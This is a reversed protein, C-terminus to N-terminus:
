CFTDFLTTEVGAGPVFVEEFSSTKKTKYRKIKMAWPKLMPYPDHFTNHEGRNFGHAINFKLRVVRKM